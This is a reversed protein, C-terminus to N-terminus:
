KKWGTGTSVIVSSSIRSRDDAGPRLHCRRLHRHQRSSSRIRLALTSRPNGGVTPNGGAWSGAPGQQRHLPLIRAERAGRSRADKRAPGTPETEPEAEDTRFGRPARCGIMSLCRAAANTAM